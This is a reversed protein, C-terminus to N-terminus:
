SSIQVTLLAAQQELLVQSKGRTWLLAGEMRGMSPFLHNKWIEVWHSVRFFRNANIEKPLFFNKNGQM